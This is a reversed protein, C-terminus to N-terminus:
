SNSGDLWTIETLSGLPKARLHWDSLSGNLMTSGKSTWLFGPLCTL